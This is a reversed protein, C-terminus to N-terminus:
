TNPDFRSRPPRRRVPISASGNSDGSTSESGAITPAYREHLYSGVTSTESQEGTNRVDVTVKVEGGLNIQPRDMHLNSYRFKTYSLGYGFPYPPTCPM